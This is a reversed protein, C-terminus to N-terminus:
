KKKVNWLSGDSNILRDTYKSRFVEKGNLLYVYDSLITSTDCNGIYKVNNLSNRYAQKPSRGFGRAVREGGTPLGQAKWYGVESAGALFVEVTVFQWINKTHRM